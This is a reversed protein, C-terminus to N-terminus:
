WSLERPLEYIHFESFHHQHVETCPLFPSPSASLLAASATPSPTPVSPSPLVPGLGEQPLCVVLPFAGHPVPSPGAGQWAEPPSPFPPPSIYIYIYIYKIIVSGCQQIASVLLVTYLSKGGTLFYIKFFSVTCTGFLGRKVVSVTLGKTEKPHTESFGEPWGESWVCNSTQLCCVWKEFNQGVEPM